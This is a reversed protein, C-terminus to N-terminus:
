ITHNREELQRLAALSNPDIECGRARLQDISMRLGCLMGEDLSRETLRRLEDVGPFDRNPEMYDALYIIQDLTCMDAAGTTHWYIARYVADNEGFIERAVTAGTKAHLLKPHEREFHNLIIGYSECLKLQETGSLAKTVDHLIGARKADVPDAGYKLALREATQSCGVVHPVRKQKHLALSVQSLREFPLGRLEAGVGYLGAGRIAELVEPALYDHACGFALMARVSTSSYPVFANELLLVRAHLEARLRDACASLEDARDDSRHAVALTALEAIEQPEHWRDFSLLMDTGMLLFLEDDPAQARIQRLTDVTFSKGGRRLEADSVTVFPLGRMALQTLRFRTEADPSLVSLTKHPPVADPVVLVRDLELLKQFECVAMRHGLHPPNFSGGFIGIRAM